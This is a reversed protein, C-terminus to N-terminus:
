HTKATLQARIEAAQAPLFDPITTLRGEWDARMLGSPSHSYVPLLMHGVEHALVLGLVWRPDSRTEIAHDIVRTSYIFARRAVHSAKGFAMPAPQMRATMVTDLIIVDLHLAGDAAARPTATQGSSGSVSANM